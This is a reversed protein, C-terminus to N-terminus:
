NTRIDNISESWVQKASAKRFQQVPLYCAVDWEDPQVAIIKSRIHPYLYRKVCPRFERYRKTADLIEYTVRIRKLEDDSDYVARTLMKNLFIVRMKPPIYHFNLGLFGDDYKQLPMVLPFLDYYPLEDKLKPNYFYFYLGGLLFKGTYGLSYKNRHRDKERYIQRPIASNNRVQNIKVNLWRMSERSLMEIQAASRQQSLETLKSTMYM